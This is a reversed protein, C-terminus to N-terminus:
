WSRGGDKVSTLTNSTSTSLLAGETEIEIVEIQPAVYNTTEM